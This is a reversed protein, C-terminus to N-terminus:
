ECQGKNKDMLCVFHIIVNIHFFFCVGRAIRRSFFEKQGALYHKFLHIFLNKCLPFHGQLVRGLESSKLLTLRVLGYRATLEFSFNMLKTDKLKNPTAVSRM